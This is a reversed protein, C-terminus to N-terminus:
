TGRSSRSPPPLRSGASPTSRKRFRTVGEASVHYGLFELSSAGFIAKARNVVLGNAALEDFVRRLDEVHEEESSSAVLIDDLYVFVHPIDRLISDMMRQFDQGANKLGSHCSCSSSSVSPHSSRPRTSMRLPSQSKITDRTSTSRLSSQRGQWTPTSTRSTVSRTADDKTISNLRRYDGCLRPSGDPKRATQLASAWASNSRRVIGLKLLKDFEAKAAALQDPASVAHAPTSPPVRLPSTTNFVTSPRTRSQFGVNDTRPARRSAEHIQQQRLQRPLQPGNLGQRRRNHLRRPGGSTGLHSRQRPPIGHPLRGWSHPINCGRRHSGLRVQPQRTRHDHPTIRLQRHYHRQGSPTTNVHPTLRPREPESSRPLPHRRRRDDLHPRQPQGPRPPATGLQRHGREVTHPGSEPSRTRRTTPSSTRRGARWAAPRRRRIHPLPINSGAATSVAPRRGQCKGLALVLGQLQPSQRRIDPPLLM